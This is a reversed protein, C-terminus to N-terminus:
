IIRLTSRYPDADAVNSAGEVGAGVVTLEPDHWAPVIEVEIPPPPPPEGPPPPPEPEPDPEPEEDPDPPIPPPPPPEPPPPPLPPPEEGAGGTVPDFVYSAGFAAGYAGDDIRFKVTIPTTWGAPVWLRAEGQYDGSVWTGVQNNFNPVAANFYGEPVLVGRIVGGRADHSRPLVSGEPMLAFRFRAWKGSDGPTWAPPFIQVDTAFPAVEVVGYTVAVPNRLGGDNTASITVHTGDASAHPAYRFRAVPHDTTLVPAAPLFKGGAGGDSLTITVPDDVAGNITLKFAASMANARGFDIEPRAMTYGTAATAGNVAEDRWRLGRVSFYVFQNYQKQVSPGVYGDFIADHRAIYTAREAGPAAIRAAYWAYQPGVLTNLPPAPRPQGPGDYGYYDVGWGGGCGMDLLKNSNRDWYPFSKVTPDIHPDLGWNSTLNWVNDWLYDLAIKIKPPIAPDRFRDWYEILGKTILSVAFPIIALCGPSGAAPPFITGPVFMQNLHGILIDKLRDRKARTACGISEADLHAMLGHSADRGRQWGALWSESFNDGAAARRHMLAILDFCVLDGTEEYHRRLGATVGHYTQTSGATRELFLQVWQYYATGIVDLWRAEGTYEYVLWYILLPDYHNVSGLAGLTAPPQYRTHYKYAGAYRTDDGRIWTNYRTLAQPFAM